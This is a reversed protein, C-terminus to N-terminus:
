WGDYNMYFMATRKLEISANKLEFIKLHNLKINNKYAIEFLKEVGDAYRPEGTIDTSRCIALAIETTDNKRLADVFVRHLREDSLIYRLAKEHSDEFLLAIKYPKSGFHGGHAIMMEILEKDYERTELIYHLLASNHANPNMGKQLLAGFMERLEQPNQLYLILLQPLSSDSWLYNPDLGMDVLPLVLQKQGYILASSLAEPYEKAISIGSKQMAQLSALDGKEIADRIKDSHTKAKTQKKSEKKPSNERQLLKKIEDRASIYRENGWELLKSEVLELNSEKKDDSYLALAINKYFVRNEIQAYKSANKQSLIYKLTQENKTVSIAALDLLTYEGFGGAFYMLGMEGQSQNNKYVRYPNAGSSILLETMQANGNLVAIGLADLSLSKTNMLTDTKLGKKLLEKAVQEDAYMAAMHLYTYELEKPKFRFIFNEQKEPNEKAVNASLFVHLDSKPL